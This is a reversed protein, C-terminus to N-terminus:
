GNKVESSVGLKSSKIQLSTSPRKLIRGYYIPRWLDWVKVYLARLIKM